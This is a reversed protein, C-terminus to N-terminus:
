EQNIPLECLGGDCFKDEAEHTGMGSFDIPLLQAKYSEYEEKSIVIKPAQAYGHDSRPLFSVGKLRPMYMELATAIEPGETEPDFDVTVSVQNDAWHFQMLAALELQEWMTMPRERLRKYEMPFYVVKTNPVMVDDEVRYNAKELIDVLPSDATIRMTQYEYTGKSDHIGERTGVLKSVTGSPKVSTTKISRPICLWDSYIKDLEQVYNYGERCWYLHETLGVKAISDQIGSQSCGIRRNRLMVANTTADHTPVLTVTKAYLYACKLAEEYDSESRCNVPFTEVLCCLEKDWLTQEACPNTGVAREDLDNRPDALRGHSRALEMNIVGPEGNLRIKEAVNKIDERRWEGNWLVSNNSAWRPYESAEPNNAYDKLALFAEDYVDSLAIEATRRVGGSVVCEGIVTCVDVIFTSDVRKNAYKARLKIFHSHLLHLAEPGSATGGFRKLPAGKPRVKHTDPILWPSSPDVFSELAAKVYDCWGERSDEVVWPKWETPVPAVEVEADVGLTDFGVGVGFMSMLMLWHFPGSFDEDINATSVFGCNNLCAGGVEFLVESGMKSLGRGPPLWKFDFMTEFMTQASRQAKSDSWPLNLQTCHGKQIQYVGEVVRKCTEWFEETTGDEKTAAYTRKFVVYGMPGFEPKAKKYYDLFDEDLSFPARPVNVKGKVSM